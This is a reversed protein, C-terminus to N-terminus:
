PKIWGAAQAAAHTSGAGNNDSCLVVGNQDITFTRVGSSGYTTPTACADWAWATAANMVFDYGTDAGDSLSEDIYAVDAGAVQTNFLALITASYDKIQNADADSTNFMTQAGAIARLSAIAATENSAMMSRMLSPVAMVAIVAIIAVVIMLEILTFGKRM